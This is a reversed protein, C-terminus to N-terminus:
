RLRQQDYYRSLPYVVRIDEALFEDISHLMGLFLIGTEGTGLTNNIRDAIFQDRRKLLTDSLSEHLVKDKAADSSIEAALIQKVFNYEEILLEISETGMITAGKRMLSLLLQHNRSGKKAIDTVIKVEMGCHPLGDQYIRVKEYSLSLEDIIKEIENWLNDVFDIKRKWDNVGLQQLSAQYVSEKLTGMDVEGHIIPIHILTRATIKQRNKKTM